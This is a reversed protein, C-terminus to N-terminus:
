ETKEKKEDIIMNDINYLYKEDIEYYINGHSEDKSGLKNNEQQIIEDM